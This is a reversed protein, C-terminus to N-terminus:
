GPFQDHYKVCIGAMALHACFATQLDLLVRTLARESGKM